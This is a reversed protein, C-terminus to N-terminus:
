EGLREFLKALDIDTTDISVANKTKNELNDYLIKYDEANSTKLYNKNDAIRLDLLKEEAIVANLSNLINSFIYYNMNLTEDYSSHFERM